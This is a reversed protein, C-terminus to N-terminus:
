HMRRLEEVIERIGDVTVGDIALRVVVEEQIAKPCNLFRELLEGDVFRFPETGQRVATKLARYKNFAAAPSVDDKVEGPSVILGAIANQLRM